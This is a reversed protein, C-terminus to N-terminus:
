KTAWTRSIYESLLLLREATLIYALRERSPRNALHQKRAPFFEKGGRDTMEYLEEM